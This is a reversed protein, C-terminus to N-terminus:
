GLRTQATAQPRGAVPQATPSAPPELDPTSLTQLEREVLDGFAERANAAPRLLLELRERLLVAGAEASLNNANEPERSCRMERHCELSASQLERSGFAGRIGRCLDALEHSGILRLKFFGSSIRNGQEEIADLHPPLEAPVTAYSIARHRDEIAFAAELIESGIRLLMDRRWTDSDRQRAAHRDDRARDLAADRDDNARKQAADRDDNARQQAADRDDKARKNTSGITVILTVMAAVFLLTSGFFPVLTVWLPEVQQVPPPNM